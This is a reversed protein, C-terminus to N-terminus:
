NVYIVRLKEELNTVFKFIEAQTEELSVKDNTRHINNIENFAEIFKTNHLIFKIVSEYCDIKNLINFDFIKNVVYVKKLIGLFTLDKPNRFSIIWRSLLLDISCNRKNRKLLYNLLKLIDQNFSCIKIYSYLQELGEEQKLEFLEALDCTSLIQYNEIIRLL